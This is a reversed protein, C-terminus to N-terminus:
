VVICSVNMGSGSLVTAKNEERTVKGESRARIREEWRAALTSQAKPKLNELEQQRIREKLQRSREKRQESEQADKLAKERKKAELEKVTLRTSKIEKDRERFARYNIITTSLPKNLFM